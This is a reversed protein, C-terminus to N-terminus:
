GTPRKRELDLILAWFVPVAWRWSNRWFPQDAKFGAIGGQSSLVVIGAFCIGLFSFEALCDKTSCPVSLLALTIPWIMNLTTGTTCTLLSYAKFLILYYGFPNLAGTLASNCLDRRTTYKLLRLKGIGASLPWFFCASFRRFCHFDASCLPTGKTGIKFATAVTSWILVSLLAYILSKDSREMLPLISRHFFSETEKKLPVKPENNLKRFKERAEPVFISGPHEFLIRRYTEAAKPINNMRYNYTEALMFLADDALFTM